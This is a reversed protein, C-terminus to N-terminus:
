VYSSSWLFILTKCHCLVKWNEAGGTVWVLGLFLVEPLILALNDFLVVYLGIFVFLGLVGSTGTILISMVSESLIFAGGETLTHLLNLSIYWNQLCDGGCGEGWSHSQVSSSQVPFCAFVCFGTPSVFRRDSQSKVEGWYLGLELGSPISLIFMSLNLISGFLGCSSGSLTVMENISGGVVSSSFFVVVSSFCINPCVIVLLLSFLILYLLCDIHSLETTLLAIYTWVKWAEAIIALIFMKLTHM